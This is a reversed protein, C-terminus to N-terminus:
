DSREPARSSEGMDAVRIEPSDLWYIRHLRNCFHSGHRLAVMRDSWVQDDLSSRFHHLEQFTDEARFLLVEHAARFAAHSVGLHFDSVGDNHHSICGRLIPCHWALEVDINVINVRHVLFRQFCTPCRDAFWCVLEVTISIGVNLIRDTVNPSDSGMDLIHRRLFHLSSYLFACVLLVESGELPSTAAVSRAPVVKFSLIGAQRLVLLEIPVCTNM